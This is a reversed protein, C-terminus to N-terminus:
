EPASVGLAKIMEDQESLRSESVTGLKLREKDVMDDISIGAERLEILTGMLEDRTLREPQDDDNVDIINEDVEGGSEFLGDALIKRPGPALWWRPSKIKVENEASVTAQGIAEITREWLEITTEDRGSKGARIWKGYVGVPLGVAAASSSPSGGALIYTLYLSFKNSGIFLTCDDVTYKPKNNM